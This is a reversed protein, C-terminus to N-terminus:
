VQASLLCEYAEDLSSVAEEMNSIAEEAKTAKEGGVLNEPMNNLYDQEENQVQEIEEKLAAVAVALRDLEARRQKNM